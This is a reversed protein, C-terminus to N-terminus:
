KIKNFLIVVLNGKEEKVLQINLWGQTTNNAYLHLKDKTDPTQINWNNSEFYSKYRQYIVPFSLETKYTTVLFQIKPDSSNNEASGTIVASKDVILDAPFGEVLKGQPAGKILIESIKPSNDVPKAEEIIAPKNILPLVYLLASVVVLVVGLVIWFIPKKFLDCCAPKPTNPIPNTNQNLNPEIM